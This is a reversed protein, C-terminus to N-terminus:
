RLVQAFPPGRALERESSIGTALIERLDRAGIERARDLAVVGGEAPLTETGQQRLECRWCCGLDGHGNGADSPRSRAHFHFGALSLEPAICGYHGNRGIDQGCARDLELQWLAM